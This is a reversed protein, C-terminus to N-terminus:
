DNSTGTHGRLCCSSMSSLSRRGFSEGVDVQARHSESEILLHSKRVRKFGRGGRGESLGHARARAQGHKHATCARLGCTEAPKQLAAPALLAQRPLSACSVRSLASALVCCARLVSTRKLLKRVTHKPRTYPLTTAISRSALEHSALTAQGEDAM